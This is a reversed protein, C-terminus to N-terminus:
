RSRASSRRTSRWIVSSTINSIRSSVPWSYRLTYAPLVLSVSSTSCARTPVTPSTTVAVTASSSGCGREIRVDGSVARARLRVTRRAVDAAAM